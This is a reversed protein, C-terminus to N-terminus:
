KTPPLGQITDKPELEKLRAEHDRLQRRAKSIEADHEDDKETRTKAELKVGEGSDQRLKVAKVEERLEAIQEPATPTRFATVVQSVAAGLAMIISALATGATGIFILTRGFPMGAAKAMLSAPASAAATSPPWPTSEVGQEVVVAGQKPAAQRLAEVEVPSAGPVPSWSKKPGPAPPLELDPVAPEEPPMPASQAAPPAVPAKITRHLRATHVPPPVNPRPAQIQGKAIGTLSTRKPPPEQNGDRRPDAAKQLDRKIDEFDVM